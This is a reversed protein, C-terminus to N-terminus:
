VCALALRHSGLACEKRLLGSLRVGHAAKVAGKSSPLQGYIADIDAYVLDLGFCDLLSSSLIGDLSDLATRM